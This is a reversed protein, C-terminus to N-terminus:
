VLKIFSLLEDCSALPLLVPPSSASQLMAGRFYPPMRLKVPRERGSVLIGETGRLMRIQDASMLPVAVTRAREDSGGFFTDYVTNTGLIREIYSTTEVDLGSFFLKNGCGGSFITRAEERGYVAELQVDRFRWM